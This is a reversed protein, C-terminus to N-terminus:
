IHTSEKARGFHITSTALVFSDSFVQDQL